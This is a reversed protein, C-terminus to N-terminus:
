PCDDATLALIHTNTRTHTHTHTNVNGLPQKVSPAANVSVAALRHPQDPPCDSIGPSQHRAQGSCCQIHTSPIINPNNGLHKKNIAHTKHLWTHTPTNTVSFMPWTIKGNAAHNYSTKNHFSLGNTHVSCHHLYLFYM